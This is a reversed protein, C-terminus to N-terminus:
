FLYLWNRGYFGQSGIRLRDRLLSLPAAQCSKSKIKWIMYLLHFLIVIIDSIDQGAGGILVQCHASHSVQCNLHHCAIQRRFTSLKHGCVNM